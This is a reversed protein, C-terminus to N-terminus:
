TVGRNTSKLLKKLEEVERKSQIVEQLLVLLITEVSIHGLEGEPVEETSLKNEGTFAFGRTGLIQKVFPDEVLVRSAKTFPINKEKTRKFTYPTNM